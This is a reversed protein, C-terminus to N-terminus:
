KVMLEDETSHYSILRILAKMQITIAMLDFSRTIVSQDWIDHYNGSDDCFQLGM